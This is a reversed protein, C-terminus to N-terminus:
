ALGISRYGRAVMGIYTVYFDPQDLLYERSAPDLLRDFWARHEPVLYPRARCGLDDFYWRLYTREDASLPTHRATSYPTVTCGELGAEAFAGCLDRGIFFRAMESAGAALARLQAERVALELEPPWPLVLQHLPDNEFVAIVGGPRTVRRLERLAAIPEPLSYMSQACWVLDFTGEDFPLSAIDGLQFSVCTGHPTAAARAAAAALYAASIDVGIVTGNPGVREALWLTYTGAGCAMDLVRDSPHLPLDALMARLEAAHARHYAELMPAYAPLEDKELGRGVERAFAVDGAM